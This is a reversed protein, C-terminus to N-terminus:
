DFISTGQRICSPAIPSCLNANLTDRLRDAEKQAKLETTQLNSSLRQILPETYKNLQKNSFYRNKSDYTVKLRCLAIHGLADKQLPNAGKELLHEVVAQEANFELAYHLPTSGSQTHANVDFGKELLLDILENAGPSYWPGLLAIAKHMIPQYFSQLTTLEERTVMSKITRMTCLYTDYRDCSPEKLWEQISRKAQMLLTHLADEVTQKKDESDHSM